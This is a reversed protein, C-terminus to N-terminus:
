WVPAIVMFVVLLIAARKQRAARQEKGSFITGVSGVNSQRTTIEDV